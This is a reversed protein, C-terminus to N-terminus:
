RNDCSECTLFWVNLGRNLGNGWQYCIMERWSRLSTSGRRGRRCVEGQHRRGQHHAGQIQGARFSKRRPWWPRWPRDHLHGVPKLHWPWTWSHPRTQLGHSKDSVALCTYVHQEFRWFMYIRRSDETFCINVFFRDVLNGTEFTHREINWWDGRSEACIDGGGFPLGGFLLLLGAILWAIPGAFRALFDLPSGGASANQMVQFFRQFMPPFDFRPIIYRQHLLDFLFHIFYSNWPHIPIWHHIHQMKAFDPCQKNCSPVEKQFKSAFQEWGNNYGYCYIGGRYYTNESLYISLDISWYISLYISPHISLHISLHILCISWLSLDSLDSLYIM